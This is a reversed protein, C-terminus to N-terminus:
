GRGAAKGLAPRRGAMRCACPRADAYDALFSSIIIIIGFGVLGGGTIEGLETQTFGFQKSWEGLVSGSRVAFGVGSAVIAMFGAWLLRQANPAVADSTGNSM